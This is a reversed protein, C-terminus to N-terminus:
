GQLWIDNKSEDYRKKTDRRGRGQIAGVDIWGSPRYFAGTHRQWEISIKTLASM